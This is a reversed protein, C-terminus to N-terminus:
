ARRSGRKYFPRPVVRAPLAVEGAKVELATGNAALASEVYGM